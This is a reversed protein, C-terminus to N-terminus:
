IMDSRRTGSEVVVQSRAKASQVTQSPAAPQSSKCGQSSTRSWERRKFQQPAPRASRMIESLQVVSAELAPGDRLALLDHYQAAEEVTAVPGLTVRLVSRRLGFLAFGARTFLDFLDEQNNAGEFICFRLGPMAVLAPLVKPEAGEIDIKVGFSREGVLPAVYAATDETPIAIARTEGRLMKDAELTAMGSHTAPVRLTLTGASDYLACRHLKVADALGAAAIGAAVTDALAPQPEFLHVPVTPGLCSAVSLGVTAYNAGIDLFVDCDRLLARALRSVKFDNSGFLWLIRGDHDRIDVELPVGELTTTPLCHQGQRQLKAFLRNMVPNFALKTLGSNPTAKRLLAAYLRLVTMTLSM